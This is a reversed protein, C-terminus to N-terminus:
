RRGDTLYPYFRRILLIYWYVKFTFSLILCVLANILEDLATEVESM